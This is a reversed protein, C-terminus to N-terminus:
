RSQLAGRSIASPDRAIREAFEGFARVAPKLASFVDQVSLITRNLNDYLDAQLVLRQLTGNPNLKRGSPDVLATTLLGLDYTMRNIRQVTQGFQTVPKQGAPAGLDDALPAFDALVENLRASSTALNTATTQLYKRTPDDLTANFRGAAMRVEEITPKIESQSEAIVADVRNSLEGLRKGTDRWTTLFQDLAEAKTTVSAIGQAAQEIANLTSGARTFAETAAALALAPDPAVTGEIIRGEAMSEGPSDSTMLDTPSDTPGPLVDISVDGILARSLRPLSGAAIRYKRELALTALVGDGADPRRDFEIAAVQGIRIGSKRVPIGVAIGPAEKFHVTVFVHDQFLAPSEGFWVLLMTLVLGAVIVFMGIRFQMVRENM